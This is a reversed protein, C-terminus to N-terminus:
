IGKTVNVLVSIKESVGNENQVEITAPIYWGDKYPSDKSANKILEALAARMKLPPLYKIEDFIRKTLSLKATFTISTGDFSPIHSFKNKFDVSLFVTNAKTFNKGYITVKDGNGFVTSSIREVIPGDITTVTSSSNSDKIPQTKPSSTTLPDDPTVENAQLLEGKPEEFFTSPSQIVSLLSRQISNNKSPSAFLATIVIAIVTLAIIIFRKSPMM